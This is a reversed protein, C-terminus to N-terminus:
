SPILNTIFKLGFEPCDYKITNKNSKYEELLADEHLDALFGWTRFSILQSSCLMFRKLTRWPSPAEPTPNAIHELFHDGKSLTNITSYTVGSTEWETMIAHLSQSIKNPISVEYRQFKECPNIDLYTISYRAVTGERLDRWLFAFGHSSIENSKRIIREFASKIQELHVDLDEIRGGSYINNAYICHQLGSFTNENFQMPPNADLLAEPPLHELELPVTSKIQLCLINRKHWFIENFLYNKLLTPWHNSIIVCIVDGNSILPFHAKIANTYAGIETGSERTPGSSNKLEVVIFTEMGPDFLLFDPKIIESKFLSINKNESVLVTERVCEWCYDYSEIIRNRKPNSDKEYSHPIIIGGLGSFNRLHVGIAEQMEKENEFM